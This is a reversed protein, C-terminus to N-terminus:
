RQYDRAQRLMASYHDGRLGKVYRKTRTSRGDIVEVTEQIVDTVPLLDYKDLTV